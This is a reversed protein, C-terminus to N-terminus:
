EEMYEVDMDDSDHHRTIRALLQLLSILVDLLQTTQRGTLNMESSLRLCPLELTLRRGFLGLSVPTPVSICLIEEGTCCDVHHQGSEQVPEQVPEQVVEQVQVQEQQHKHKHDHKHKREHKHKRSMGKV